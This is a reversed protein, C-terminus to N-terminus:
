HAEVEEGGVKNKKTPSEALVSNNDEEKEEKIPAPRKHFSSSEDGDDTKKEESHDDNDGGMMASPPDNSSSPSSASTPAEDAAKSHEAAELSTAVGSGSRLNEIDEVEFVTPSPAYPAANRSTKGRATLTACHRSAIEDDEMFRRRDNEEQIMYADRQDRTLAEWARMLRSNLNTNVLVPDLTEEEKDGGAAEKGLSKRVDEEALPRYKALNDKVFFHFDTQIPKVEQATLETAAAARLREVERHNAIKGDVLHAQLSSSTVSGDASGSPSGQPGGNSGSPPSKDNGGSSPPPSGVRRHSSPASDPPSPSSSSERGGLPM